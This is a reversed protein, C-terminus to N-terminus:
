TSLCCSIQHGQLSHCFAAPFKCVHLYHDALLRGSWVQDPDPNYKRLMRVFEYGLAYCSEAIEAALTVNALIPILSASPQPRECTIVMTSRMCHKLTLSAVQLDICLTSAELQYPQYHIM